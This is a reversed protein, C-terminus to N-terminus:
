KLRRELEESAIARERAQGIRIADFLALLEYLEADERAAEPVRSYLPLLSAGRVLGMPDPWVPPAEDTPVLLRSIPPAGYATPVGVTIEGRVAPYAFPAGNLIFKRLSPLIPKVSGDIALALRAAVLRQAAAHAEFPSLRLQRGLEAYTLRNSGLLHLKLAVVLDQPKLAWQRHSSRRLAASESQRLEQKM